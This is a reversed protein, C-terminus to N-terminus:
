EFVPKALKMFHKSFDKPWGELCQVFSKKDKRYLARIAEEYGNLNGALVSMVKYTIEQSQKISRVGLSKKSAEEVLKRLNVSAGGTQNALWEWHRPLLTVERAVVGLKPRGPGDSNKDVSDPIFIDLRSLVESKSGRLNFDIQSGTSNSFILISEDEHKGEQNKVKLVVEQLRGKCLLRNGVFATYTSDTGM